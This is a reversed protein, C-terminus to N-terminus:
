QFWFSVSMSASLSKVFHWCKPPIYLMQGAKLVCEKGQAESFLPFDKLDVNEVDIQSTNNLLEGQHPYLKDTQDCKYLRVYKEGCIQCLFNHKPDTHLPSVTERPGFWVNVVPEDSDEEGSFCLEPTDVDEKLDPVQELLDHQALYVKEGKFCKEVFDNITLVKQTWNSDTYRSGIEVPVSRHGTTSALHELSWKSFAPWQSVVGSVLVPTESLRYKEIFDVLSLHEEEKVRTVNPGSQPVSPRNEELKLRKPAIEHRGALLENLKGALKSCLNDMIPYGMLFGFDLMRIVDGIVASDDEHRMDAVTGARRLAALAYAERWCPDVDKWHGTNLKEWLFDQAATLQRYSSEESTLIHDVIVKPPLKKAEQLLSEKPALQDFLAQM